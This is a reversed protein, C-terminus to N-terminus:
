NIEVLALVIRRASPELAGKMTAQSGDSCLPCREKGWLEIVEPIDRGPFASPLKRSATRAAM